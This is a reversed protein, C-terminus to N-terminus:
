KHSYSTCYSLTNGRSDAGVSPKGEQRQGEVDGEPHSVPRNQDGSRTGPSHCAQLQLILFGPYM